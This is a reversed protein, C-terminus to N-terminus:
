FLISYFPKAFCLDLPETISHLSRALRAIKSKAEWEQASLNIQSNRPACKHMKNKMNMKNRM